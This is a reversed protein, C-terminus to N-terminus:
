SDATFDILVTRNEATLTELAQLSFVQWPLENEGSKEPVAVQQATPDRQSVRQSVTREFRGQMISALATFAFLGVATAFTAAGMWGRLKTQFGSTVPIRGVWWLAAWLGFMFAVAPVVVPAPIITLLFVTTGLLVFGMIHKFTDMWAGPKPLFSVLRPFLGIALYPSAMGLGVCAFGLYTILAPQRVSWALAPGLLPGSCPTALVTTLVGKFFAGAAGEKAALDNVQGAGVFGPIPIDWVGLFSLAFAFVISALVVNFTPSSFQRGWGLSMFVALSALVMFVSMLGICYWLNLAFVRGRNDGSQQVFAMVKLGIVPLVCPMFNLIFGAAFAILLVFALPQTDDPEELADLDLADTVATAPAAASGAAALKAAEAYKGAEFRLPQAATAPDSVVQLDVTFRAAAPLDCQSKTCTQFAIAGPLTYRGPAAEEPITVDVTWTVPSEHYYQIPQQELGTEEAKPKASPTVAGLRWAPPPQFVILTPKALQNSDSPAYAYIHWGSDPTATLQIRVSQGPAAAAPEVSGTLTLHTRKPRFGPPATPPEYRGEFSLSLDKKLPICVGDDKCVQGSFKVAIRLQEPSVGDNLRFPASWTLKGTHEEVRVGAWVEYQKVHPAQDPRFPGALSFAESLELKLESKQPGGPPQSLSYVHWGPAIEARVLLEGDRGGAALRFGGTLKLENGDPGAGFGFSGLQDVLNLDPALKIEPEQASAVPVLFSIAWLALHSVTISRKGM